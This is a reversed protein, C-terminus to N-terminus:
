IDACYTSELMILNLGWIKFIDGRRRAEPGQVYLGKTQLGALDVESGRLDKEFALKEAFGKSIRRLGM